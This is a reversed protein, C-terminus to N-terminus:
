GPLLKASPTVLFRGLHRKPMVGSETFFGCYEKTFISPDASGAGVLVCGFKSLNKVRPEQTPKYENPAYYKVVHNDDVQLMTTIFRTGDSKWMPVTGIKRAILGSRREFRNFDSKVLSDQVEVLTQEDVRNPYTEVGKILSPVGFRDKVM